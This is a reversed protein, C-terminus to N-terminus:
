FAHLRVLVLTPGWFWWGLLLLAWVCTRPMVCLRNVRSLQLCVSTCDTVLRVRILGVSTARQKLEPIFSSALVKCSGMLGVIISLDIFRSLGLRTFLVRIWVTILVYLAGIIWRRKRFTNCAVVERLIVWLITRRARRLEIRIVIVCSILLLM